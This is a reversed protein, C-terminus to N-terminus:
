LRWTSQDQSAHVVAVVVVEDAPQDYRYVLLYPTRNIPCLRNGDEDAAYMEPFAALRGLADAVSATFRAATAPSHAASRAEFALVDATARPESRTSAM